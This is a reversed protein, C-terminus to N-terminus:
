KKSLNYTGLLSKVDGAPALVLLRLREDGMVNDGM